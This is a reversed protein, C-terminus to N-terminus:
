TVGQVIPVKQYIRMEAHQGDLVLIQPRSLIQVRSEDDGALQRILEISCNSGVTWVCADQERWVPADGAVSEIACHLEEITTDSVESIVAPIHFQLTPLSASLELLRMKEHALRDSEQKVLLRAQQRVQAALETAGAAELHDAASVLDGVAEIGAHSGPPMPVSSPQPLPQQAEATLANLIALALAGLWAFRTTM